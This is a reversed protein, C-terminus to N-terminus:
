PLLAWRLTKGCVLGLGGSSVVGLGRKRRARGTEEGGEGEQRYSWPKALDWTVGM